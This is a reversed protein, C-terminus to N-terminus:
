RKPNMKVFMFADEYIGNLYFYEKKLCEKVYGNRIAVNISPQNSTVCEIEIRRIKRAFLAKELLAVAESMFGHGCKDQRLWYGLEVHKDLMNINAVGIAGILEDNKDTILYNYQTKNNWKDMMASTTKITDQMNKNNDLWRLYKKLFVRNRNVIFLMQKDYKHTRWVLNIRKGKIEQPLTLEATKNM